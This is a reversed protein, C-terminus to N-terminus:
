ERDIRRLRSNLIALGAYLVEELAENPKLGLDIMVNDFLIWDDDFIRICNSAFKIQKKVPDSAAQKGKIEIM